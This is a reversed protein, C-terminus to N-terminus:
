LYVLYDFGTFNVLQFQSRVTFVKKSDIIKCGYFVKELLKGERLVHSYFGTENLDVKRIELNEDYLEKNVKVQASDPEFCIRVYENKYEGLYDQHIRELLQASQVQASEMTYNQDYDVMFDTIM